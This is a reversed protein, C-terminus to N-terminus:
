TRAVDPRSEKTQCQPLTSSSRLLRDGRRTNCIRKEQRSNTMWALKSVEKGVEGHEHALSAARTWVSWSKLGESFGRWNLINSSTLGRARKDQAFESTKGPIAKREMEEDVELPRM